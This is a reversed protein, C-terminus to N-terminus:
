RKYGGFIEIEFCSKLQPFRISLGSNSGINLAGITELSPMSIITLDASGGLELGGLWILRDAEVSTLNSAFKDINVSESDTLDQVARRWTILVGTINKVNSMVIPGSFNQGLAVKGFITTCNGLKSDFDDQNAFYYIEYANKYGTYNGIYQTNCKPLLTGNPFTEAIITLLIHLPLSGTRLPYSIRKRAAVLSVAAALALSGSMVRVAGM